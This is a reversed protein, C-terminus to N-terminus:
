PVEQGHIRFVRIGTDFLSQQERLQTRRVQFRNSSAFSRGESKFNFVPGGRRAPPFGFNMPALEIGNGASRMVPATDSIKVDDAPPLEAESQCDSDRAGAAAHTRLLAVM